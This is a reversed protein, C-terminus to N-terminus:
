TAYPDAADRLGDGVFNFALVTVIVFFAPVLLWPHQAIARVNQAEKLLVGWSTVPPRLGLGLFSLATEALIMGPIALTISVTIHSMMSPLLHRRIITMDTAGAVLAAMAFDDDRLSLLRGRVVRALDTWGMLSLIVTIGFYVRLPPWQAPLAASLAMWLPISPFTRLLEIIRQIIADITGGYYGSIGGLLLGILLSLAVGILGISLSVRAGYLIRSLVDRGMRDTGLLFIAGGDEVGFLHLNTEWRNWFLYDDGAVVFRIRYKETTDETYTKRLTEPDVSRKIAYVFPRLRGADFLHIRQPPAHLYEVQRAHLDYPAVFECLVALLYFFAILVMGAIAPRHRRFKRWILHWQSAVFYDHELVESAHKSFINQQLIRPRKKL